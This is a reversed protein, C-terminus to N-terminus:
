AAYFSFRERVEGEDLGLDEFRYDIRGHRDRTHSQLHARIKQASAEDYEVDAFALVKKVMAEPARMFEEFQVELLNGAPVKPTDRVSQQLMGELRDIWARAERLHNKPTYCQRTSYLVMTILSLVARAPDRHTRVIKADPFARVIAPLQDVHQPSKLIWRRRDVADGRRSEFDIAQLVKRLYLYGPTNDQAAYWARYRPAQFISEYFYSRFCLATLTLEEHPMDLKMEHMRPLLPVVHEACFISIRHQRRRARVSAQLDRHKPSAVPSLTQWYPIYRLGSVQSLLNHLHTTGTRPLGAIIVPAKVPADTIQPNRAVLNEVCLRSELQMALVAYVTLHGMNTLHDAEHIDQLLIRLPELFDDSGFSQLGTAERARQLAADAQLPLRKELLSRPMRNLARVYWPLWPDNWDDIRWTEPYRKM